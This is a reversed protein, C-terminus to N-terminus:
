GGKETKTKKPKGTPKPAEVKEAIVEELIPFTDPNLVVHTLAAKNEVFQEATMVGYPPINMKAKKVRYSRTEGDEAQLTM